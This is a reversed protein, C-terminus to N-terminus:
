YGCNTNDPKCSTFSPMILNPKSKKDCYIGGGGRLSSCGTFKCGKIKPSSAAAFIGGGYFYKTSCNTFTCDEIMPSSSACYLGGGEKGSTCRSFLSTKVLVNSELAFIGGGSSTASCNSFRCNEMKAESRLLFIGGGSQAICHFFTCDTISTKAKHEEALLLGGGYSYNEKLSGAWRDFEALEIVNSSERTVIQPRDLHDPLTIPGVGITLDHDEKEAGAKAESGSLPSLTYFRSPPTKACGALILSLVILLIWRTRFVNSMDSEEPHAKEGSLHSTTNNSM